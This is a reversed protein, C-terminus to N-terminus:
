KLLNWGLHLFLGALFCAIGFLFVILLGFVLIRVSGMKGRWSNINAMIFGCSAVQVGVLAISGICTAQHYGRAKFVIRAIFFPV